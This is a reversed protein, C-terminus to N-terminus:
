KKRKKLDETSIKSRGMVQNAWLQLTDAIVSIKDINEKARAFEGEEGKSIEKISLIEEISIKKDM